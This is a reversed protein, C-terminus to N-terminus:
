PNTPCPWTNNCLGTALAPTTGLLGRFLVYDQSNVVGNANIDAKNYTPAVSPQGLQQRFLVYDQSNTVNNNNLDGDCRNGFGDSDSDVQTANSLTRCNDLADVVGDSDTDAVNPAFIYYDGALNATVVDDVCPSPGPTNGARGFMYCGDSGKVVTNDALILFRPNAVVNYDLFGGDTTDCGGGAVTNDLGRVNGTDIDDAIVTRDVCNAAGGVNYAVTSNLTTNPGLEVNLCGNAGVTALFTGEVCLYNGATTTNAATNIVLNTVKDSIVISGNPNSAIASATWLLGTMTMTTGNWDWTPQGAAIVDTGVGNLTVFVAGPAPSGSTNYCPQTYSPGPCGQAAGAKFMLASLTGGSSRQHHSVLIYPAASAGTVAM